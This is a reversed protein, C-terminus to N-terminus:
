NKSCNVPIKYLKMSGTESEGVSIDLAVDIVVQFRIESPFFACYSFLVLSCFSIITKVQPIVSIRVFACWFSKM